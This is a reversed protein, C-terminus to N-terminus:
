CSFLQIIVGAVSAVAAIFAIVTTIWFRVTDRKEQQREEEAKRENERSLAEYEMKTQKEPDYRFYSM